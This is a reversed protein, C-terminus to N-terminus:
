EQLRQEAPIGEPGVIIINDSDPIKIGLQELAWVEDITIYTDVSNDLAQQDYYEQFKDKGGFLGLRKKESQLTLERAIPKDVYNSLPYFGSEFKSILPACGGQNVHIVTEYYQDPAEEAGVLYYDENNKTVQAWLKGASVEEAVCPYLSQPISNLFQSRPQLIDEAFVKIALGVALGGWNFGAFSKEM